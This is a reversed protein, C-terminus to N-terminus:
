LPVMRDAARFFARAQAVVQGDSPHDSAEVGAIRGALDPNRTRVHSALEERASSPGTILWRQAPRLAEVIDGYYVHDPAARNGEITGAKNHTQHHPLQTSVRLGEVEDRDFFFIKALRHDLWVVAHYIHMELYEQLTEPV